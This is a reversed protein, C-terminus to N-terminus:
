VSLNFKTRFQDKTVHGGEAAVSWATFDSFLRDKEAQTALADYTAKLEDLQGDDGAELQLATVVQARSADGRAWLWFAAAMLHNDGRVADDTPDRFIRDILAM